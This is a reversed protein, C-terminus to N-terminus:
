SWSEVTQEQDSFTNAKIIATNLLNLQNILLVSNVGSIDDLVEKNRVM